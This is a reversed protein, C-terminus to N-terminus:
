RWRYGVMLVSIAFLSLTTPEPVVTTSSGTTEATSWSAGIIGLDAVDVVGDGNLDGNDVGNGTTTNFNAGCTYHESIVIRDLIKISFM